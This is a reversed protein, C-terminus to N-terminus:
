IFSNGKGGQPMIGACFQTTMNYAVDKCWDTDSGIINLTVQQLKQAVDGGESMLGWGVAVVDSNDPLVTAEKPLCIKALTKDTM